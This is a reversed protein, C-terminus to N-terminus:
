AKSCKDENWLVADFAALGLALVLGLFIAHVSVRKRSRDPPFYGYAIAMAATGVVWMYIATTSLTALLSLTLFLWLGTSFAGIRLVRYLVGVQMLLIAIALSAGLHKPEGGFSNMRFIEIDSFYYLGERVTDESGGLLHNVFGIPLPNSGTGYWVALQYWGVAALVTCSAIYVKASRLLGETNRTLTSALVVISMYLALIVVQFIPRVFPSRLVGGGVDASPLFLLSVITVVASYWFFPALSVSARRPALTSPGIMRRLLTAAILGSLVVQYAVVRLGVDPDFGQWPALFIVAYFVLKPRSFALAVASVFLIAIVVLANM